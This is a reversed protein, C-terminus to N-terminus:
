VRRRQLSCLGRQYGSQDSEYDSESVSLVGVKGFRTKLLGITCHVDSMLNVQKTGYQVSVEVSGNGIEFSFPSKDM